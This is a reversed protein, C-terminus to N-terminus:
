ERSFDLHVKPSHELIYRFLADIFLLVGAMELTEEVVVIWMYGFNGEGRADAWAAEFLETGLAGGVYVLGALAFRWRTGVPLHLFFRWFSVAFAVVVGIAPIVWAYFFIGKAGLAARLPETALEHLAATEDFSLWLFILSLGVWHRWYVGSNLKRHSAIIALQVTAILLILSSFYSPINAEGDLNTRPVFGWVWAHGTKLRITQGLIGLVVIATMTVWLTTVVRSPRIAISSEFLLPLETEIVNELETTVIYRTPRSLRCASQSM